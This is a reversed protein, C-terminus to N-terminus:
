RFLCFISEGELVEVLSQREALVKMEARHHEPSKQGESRFPLLHTDEAASTLYDILTAISFWSM